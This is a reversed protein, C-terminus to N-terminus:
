GGGGEFIGVVQLVYDGVHPVGVHFLRRLSDLQNIGEQAKQRYNSSQLKRVTQESSFIYTVLQRHSPCMDLLTYGNL